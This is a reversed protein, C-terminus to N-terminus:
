SAESESGQSYIFRFISPTINYEFRVIDNKKAPISVSHPVASPTDNADPFDASSTNTLELFGASSVYAYFYGNAPATYTAGSAGLTLDDYTSSPMAWGAGTSTGTNNVNSFDTEAKLSLDSEIQDIDVEIETKTLTAVVIYYYVDIPTTIDSVDAVIGSKSADTTIGVKKYNLIGGGATNGGIPTGYDNPSFILYNDNNDGNKNMGYNNTGDTFGLTMENGRCPATSAISSTYIKNSYKPLRVTNNVSDYVFKGCVGYTSVASQWNAETDFIQTYDGSDYLDAIYNVFDEYSGSGSLLTGDLLHVQSDTLPITSQIIEGINRASGFPVIKWYTNTTDNVPNYATSSPGTAQKAQYLIGDTGLCVSGIEYDTLSSWPVFGYTEQLKTISSYEYLAENFQSSDVITKFPFGKNIDAETLNADRYSIGAVPSPPITTTATEAFVGKITVNRVPISM